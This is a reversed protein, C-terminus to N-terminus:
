KKDGKVNGTDGSVLCVFVDSLSPPTIKAKYKKALASIKQVDEKSKDIYIFETTEVLKDVQNPKYSELESRIKETLKNTNLKIKHSTLNIDKIPSNFMIKGGDIIILDTLINSIDEIQHTTIIITKDKDFFNNTLHSLFRKCTIIDLGLTPEDLVLLKVDIATILALHVQTVMGKSLAKIKKNLPIKTHNIFDLAKQYDFKPHIDNVFDMAQKVSMWKPLIAVDSIFTMHEMLKARETKPDCGMIDIEGEYNLLGMISRLLTTKGAGNRGLLGIIKGPGIELNVKDLAKFNSYSKSFNKISIM